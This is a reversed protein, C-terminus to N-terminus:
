IMDTSFLDFYQHEHIEDFVYGFNLNNPRSGLTLQPMVKKLEIFHATKESLYGYLLIKHHELDIKVEGAVIRIYKLYDSFKKITYQNYFFLKKDSVVLVHLVFRDIFVAMKKLQLENISILGDILSSSQHIYKIKKGPYYKSALKVVSKPVCFVNVLELHKHSTLMIEDRSPNFDSNIKLYGSIGSEDFLIRPVFSFLRNKVIITITNWFNARLLHHDEFIFQVVAFKKSNDLKPDFVYDELLICLNTECDTILIQFDSHGIFLSLSYFELRDIEIKPDKIKKLLRFSKQSISDM